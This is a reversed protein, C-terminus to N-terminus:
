ELLLSILHLQTIIEDHMSMTEEFPDILRIMREISLFSEKVETKTFEGLAVSDIPNQLEEVWFVSKRTGDFDHAHLLSEDLKRERCLGVYEPGNMLAAISLIAGVLDHRFSKQGRFIRQDDVKVAHEYHAIKLDGEEAHLFSEVRVNGHIIGVSHLNKLIQIMKMGILVAEKVSLQQDCKLFGDNSPGQMVLGMEWEQTEVLMRIPAPSVGLDKVMQLYMFDKLIDWPRSALSTKVWVPYRGSLSDGRDEETYLQHIIFEERECVVPGITYNHIDGVEPSKCLYLDAFLIFFWSM